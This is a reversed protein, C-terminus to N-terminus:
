LFFSLFYIYPFIQFFYFIFIPSLLFELSLFFSLFAFSSYFCSIVDMQAWFDFRTGGNKRAVDIVDVGLPSKGISHARGWRDRNYRLSFRSM